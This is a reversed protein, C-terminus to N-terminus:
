IKKYILKYTIGFDFVVKKEKLGFIMGNNRLNDYIYCKYNKFKTKIFNGEPNINASICHGLYPIM